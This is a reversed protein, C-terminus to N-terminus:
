DDIGTTFVLRYGFLEDSLKVNIIQTLRYKMGSVQNFQNKIIKNIENGIMLPRIGEDVIWQGLPSVIDIGIDTTVVNDDENNDAVLLNIYIYSSPYGLKNELPILPTRNISKDVFTINGDVSDRSMADSEIYYLLKRINVNSNFIKMMRIIDTNFDLFFNSEKHSTDEIIAM